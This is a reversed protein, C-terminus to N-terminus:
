GKPRILEEFPPFGRLSEFDPEFHLMLWGRQGEVFAQRLLAVAQERDGLLAAIRARDLTNIGFLYPQEYSALEASRREAEPRDGRRAAIAGLGGQWGGTEPWQEAVVRILREAEDLRGVRYYAEAIPLTAQGRALWWALSTTFVRQAEDHYGHAHLERAIGQLMSGRRADDPTALHEHLLQMAEDIRGLAALARLEAVLIAPEDTQRERVRRAVALEQRYDGLRHLAETLRLWYIPWGRLEGREPDMEQLVRLAEHPRNLCLLVTGLQYHGFTNPALQAARVAARHSSVCDGRALGNLMAVQERDLETLDAMRPELMRALSDVAPWNNTMAHIVAMGVLPLAFSSDIAHARAYHGLAARWDGNGYLRELGQAYERYADYSPTRGALRAHDRMRPDVHPALGAMVGQRLAELAPLPQAAPASVPPLAVLMEASGADTIRGQVYLSDGVRYYSGSVVVRAGAERALTQLGGAGESADGAATSGRASSIVTGLPVVNVLGTQSLGQIIWDAAMSGLADLSAEATRNEFPLVLVRQPDLPPDAGRSALVVVISLALVVAGLSAIATIRSWRSTAAPSRDPARPHRDPPTTELAELAHLLADASQFREGPEKAVCRMVIAALTPPVHPAVEALPMPLATIQAALVARATGTFPPRGALMEYGILGVAYIDVRHDIQPDAAAQEPAMYAPTGPSVGISTLQQKPLVDGMAKAVGFDVVLAHRNAIMVNDPKIDRHVVGRRHASAIGDVIDRLLRRAEAPPLAGERALRTRLSEGEVFPMVYYLLGEGEGSDLLPVIHPHQLRAAIEIERLFREGGLAEALEPHVVKIAVARGHKLDRALYVTAMGGRGLEREVEYRGTVARALRALIPDTPIEGM